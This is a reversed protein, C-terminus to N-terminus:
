LAFVASRARPSRPLRPRKFHPSYVFEMFFCDFRFRILYADTGVIEGKKDRAPETDTIFSTAGMLEACEGAMDFFPKAFNDFASTNM